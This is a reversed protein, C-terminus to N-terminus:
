RAWGRWAIESGHEGVVVRVSAFECSFPGFVDGDGVAAAADADTDDDGDGARGDGRLLRRTVGARLAARVLPLRSPIM